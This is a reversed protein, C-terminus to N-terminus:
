LNTDHDKKEWACNMIVYDGICNEKTTLFHKEGYKKIMQAKWFDWYVELIQEETMEILDNGVLADGHFVPENYCYTKM